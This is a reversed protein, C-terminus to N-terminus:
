EWIKMSRPLKALKITLGFAQPQVPSLRQSNFDDRIGLM